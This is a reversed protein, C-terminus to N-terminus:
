RDHATAMNAVKIFHRKGQHIMNILKKQNDKNLKGHMGLISNATKVGCDMDSEDKFKLKDGKSKAVINQLIAFNNESYKKEKKKEAEYLTVIEPKNYSTYSERINGFTKM